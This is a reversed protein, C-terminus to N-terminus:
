EPRSRAFLDAVGASVEAPRDLAASFRKWDRADLVFRSRDALLREARERGSGLLFTTLSEGALEAAQRLLADDAPAVRLQVRETKTQSM